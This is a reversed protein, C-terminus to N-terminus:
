DAENGEFLFTDVEQRIEMDTMGVDHEDKALLLIDLFDKFKGVRSTDKEEEM